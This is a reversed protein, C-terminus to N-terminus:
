LLASFLAAVRGVALENPRRVSQTPWRPRVVVRSAVGCGDPLLVKSPAANPTSACSNRAGDAGTAVVLSAAAGYTSEVGQKGIYLGILLKRDRVPSGHRRCGLRNRFPETFNSLREAFEYNHALSCGARM